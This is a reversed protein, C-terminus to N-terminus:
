ISLLYGWNRPNCWLSRWSSASFAGTCTTYSCLYTRHILRTSVLLMLKNTRKGKSLETTPLLPSYFTARAGLRTGLGWGLFRYYGKGIKPRPRPVLSLAVDVLTAHRLPNLAVTIYVRAHFLLGESFRVVETCRVSWKGGISKVM